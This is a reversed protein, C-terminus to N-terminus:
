AIVDGFYEFGERAKVRAWIEPYTDELYENIDYWKCSYGELRPSVEVSSRDDDNPMRYRVNCALIYSKEELRKLEGYKESFDERPSKNRSRKM